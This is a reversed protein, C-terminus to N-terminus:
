WFFKLGFELSRADTQINTIRGFKCGARHVVDITGDPLPPLCWSTNPLGLNQHNLANFVEWRFEFYKSETIPFRKMLTSDVNWYGPSRLSPVLAGATGFRWFEDRNLFALYADGTLPTGNALTGSTWVSIVDPDSGFPAEFAAPNIWDKIRDAKSRSGGFKPSGILNCRSTLYNGPCSVGLPVGSQTNFNAALKWGGFIGNLIGKRNLLAKGNGFPLEYSGFVNLMQPLDNVSIVRDRRNDPDQYYGGFTQAFDGRGGPDGFPHIADVLLAALNATNGNTINKSITYAVNFNLGHSYKKQIRVNLGHYINTGDFSASQDPFFLGHYTQLLLNRPLASSGYLNELEAVAKPQSIVDTIPVSDFIATRYNLKDKTHVFNYGAFAGFLHTGHNGVYGISVMMNGPLQREVELGWMQVLPERSPKQNVFFSQGFFPDRKLAPFNDSLPPVTLTGKDTTTDSLPFSVCESFFSGCKDPFFSRPWGSFVQWGPASFQGPFNQANTANSTFFDYGGRIVTKRDAFPSWSFNVRPGFNNKNAPYQDHDRPFEPDGEYIVKGPLDTLPNICKLCFNSNPHWRAKLTGYMDWRLGLNLTFSPTIRFDDQLYAGWYRWRMYSGLWLGTGSYPGVAGLLLQALGSGGGEGTVPQSTLEGYFNLSTPSSSDWAAHELRYTFGTKLTHRGIIKTVNDLITHAESMVNSSQWSPIGFQLSGGEPTSIYFNPAPYFETKPLRTPDFLQELQKLAAIQNFASITGGKADLLQRSFNYHFENILTPTFTYTNGLGFIQNKVNLPVRSGFGVLQAPYTLGTWPVAYNRYRGPVGLWEFFYKSKPSWQHDIKISINHPVQSTGVAGKFNDCIQFGDLGSGFCGSRPDNFNPLPYSAILTQAIPDFRDMPVQTSFACTQPTPNVALGTTPDIFGTCGNPALPTGFASRAFHGNIDPGVSSFPDFIGFQVSNPDESFDGQRMRATPVTFTEHGLLHLIRTDWSFFFFTKDKGNYLKPFIVPGGLTGGFNNYHLQRDKILNGLSDVSTFPNRANTASQRSFEYINGHLANSGSKLVVNFVAGGTRSYEASFANAITQFEAVADPSPNVVVNEAISSLNLNGDLYWANAGGQGGNVALNSGLVNSADPFTGFESSFGFNSGPPGAVSNVGPVLFVLQMLDRGQLPVEQITRNELTTSFNSAATELLPVEARVEITQVAAGLKLQTDVRTVKGAPLEIDTIDLPSFGVHEFHARYKGPVLDEVRYYGASNTRTTTSVNTDTNTIAVSVEPVVAGQPDTVIGEIVGRNLQARVATTWSLFLALGLVGFAIRRLYM